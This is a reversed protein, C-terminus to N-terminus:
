ESEKLEKFEKLKTECEKIEMNLFHIKDTIYDLKTFSFYNKRFINEMANYYIEKQDLNEDLREEWFEKTGYKAM